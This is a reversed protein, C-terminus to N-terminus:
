SEHAVYSQADIRQQEPFWVFTTMDTISQELLAGFASVDEQTAFYVRIIRKAVDEQEFEPMGQWESQEEGFLNIQKSM